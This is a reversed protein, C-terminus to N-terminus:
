SRDRPSPSTYLLCTAITNCWEVEELKLRTALPGWFPYKLLMSVRSKVLKDRAPMKSM